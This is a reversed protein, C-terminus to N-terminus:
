GAPKDTRRLWYWASPWDSRTDAGDDQREIAFHPAFLSAVEEPTMGIRGILSVRPLFTYLMFLADPAALRAVHAAYRPWGESPISHLCGLDLFYDFPGHLPLENLLTVDGQLFRAPLSGGAVKARAEEIAQAVFDVGTAEWGHEALYIANTGMGCGLDLARGPPGGHEAVFAKVEPPTQNTDWPTQQRRYRWAFTLRRQAGAPLPRLLLLLLRDLVGSM